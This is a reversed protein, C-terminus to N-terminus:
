NSWCCPFCKSEMIIIIFVYVNEEENNSEHHHHYNEDNMTRNRDIKECLYRKPFKWKMENEKGCHTQTLLYCYKKENRNRNTQLLLSIVCLGFWFLVFLSFFDIWRRETGSNIFYQFSSIPCINNSKTYKGPNTERTQKETKWFVILKKLKWIWIWISRNKILNKKKFFNKKPIKEVCVCLFFEIINGMNRINM